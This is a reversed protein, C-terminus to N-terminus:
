RIITTVKENIKIGPVDFPQGVAKMVKYQEILYNKGVKSVEVIPVNNYTTSVKTIDIVEIEYITRTGMGAVKPIDITKESMTTKNMISDVKEQLNEVNGNAVDEQLKILEKEQEEKEKRIREEEAKKLQMVKNNYENMLGRIEKETEKLPKALKDREARIKDYSEKTAKVMPEYFDNVVKQQQKLTKIFETAKQLEEENSIVLSQATDQITLVQKELDEKQLM